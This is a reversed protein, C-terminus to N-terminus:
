WTIARSCSGTLGVASHLVLKLNEMVRHTQAKIGGEVLGARTMPCRRIQGTVFVFDGAKVTHSFPGVRKPGSDAVIHQLELM